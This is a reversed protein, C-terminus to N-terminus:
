SLQDVAWAQRQEAAEGGYAEDLLDVIHRVRMDSGKRLLSTRLQMACGPNATIVEDANTAVANEV